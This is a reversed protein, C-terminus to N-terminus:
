DCYYEECYNRIDTGPEDPNEVLRLLGQKYLKYLHEKEQAVQEKVSRDKAFFIYRDKLIHFFKKFGALGCLIYKYKEHLPDYQKYISAGKLLDGTERHIYRVYCGVPIMSVHREEIKVYNKLANKIFPIDEDNNINLHRKVPTGNEDLPKGPPKKEEILKSYTNYQTIGEM